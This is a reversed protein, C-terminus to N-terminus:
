GTGSKVGSAFIWVTIGTIVFRVYDVLTASELDNGVRGGKALNTCQQM